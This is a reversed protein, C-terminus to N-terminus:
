EKIAKLAAEGGIAPHGSITGRVSKVDDATVADGKNGWSSRIYTLVAALDSDTLGAGMPAMSLNWSQGVVTVQGNLGLQPIEILRTHAADNVWESGALPPAQGPKGTGDPGHCAACITDYTHKGQALIAAAGSVPQYSELEAADTYPRYVQTSFWGSNEDFYVGGLFLMLLTVSFIWVPVASGEGPSNKEPAPSHEKLDDSM